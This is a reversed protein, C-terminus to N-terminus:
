ATELSATGTKGTVPLLGRETAYDPIHDRLRLWGPL